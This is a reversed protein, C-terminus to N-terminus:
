FGDHFNPGVRHLDKKIKRCIAHVFSLSIESSIIKYPMITYHLSKKKQQKENAMVVITLNTTVRRRRHHHIFSM